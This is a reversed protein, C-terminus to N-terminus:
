YAINSFQCLTYSLKLICDPIELSIVLCSFPMDADADAYEAYLLINLLFKYWKESSLHPGNM